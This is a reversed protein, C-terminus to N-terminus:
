HTFKCKNGRSCKGNKFDRCAQESGTEAPQAQDVTAGAGDAHASSQKTQQDRGSLDSAPNSNQQLQKITNAMAALDKKLHKVQTTDAETLVDRDRKGRGPPDTALLMDPLGAADVVARYQAAAPLMATQQSWRLNCAIAHQLELDCQDKAPGDPYRFAGSDIAKCVVSCVIASSRMAMDAAHAGAQAGKAIELLAKARQSHASAARIQKFAAENMHYSGSMFLDPGVRVDPVARALEDLQAHHTEVASNLVILPAGSAACVDSSNTPVCGKVFPHLEHVPRNIDDLVPQARRLYDQAMYEISADDRSAKDADAVRHRMVGTSVINCPAFGHVNTTKEKGDWGTGPFVPPATSVAPTPAPVAAEAGGAAPAPDTVDQAAVPTIAVYLEPPWVKCDASRVHSQMKAAYAELSDLNTLVAQEFFEQPAVNGLQPTRTIDGARATLYTPKALIDSAVVDCLNLAACDLPMSAVTMCREIAAHAIAHNAIPLWMVSSHAATLTSRLERAATLGASGAGTTPTTYSGKDFVLTTVVSGDSDDAGIWNGASPAKGSYTATLADYAAKGVLRTPTVPALGAFM